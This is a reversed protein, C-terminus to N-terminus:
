TFAQVPSGKPLPAKSGPRLSALIPIDRGEEELLLPRHRYALYDNIIREQAESIPLRREKDGKGVIDIVLEENQGYRAIQIWGAAPM